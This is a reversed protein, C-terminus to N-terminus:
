EVPMVLCAAVLGPAGIREEKVNSALFEKKKENRRREQYGWEESGDYGLLCPTAYAHCLGLHRDGVSPKNRARGIQAQRSQSWLLSKQFGADSAHASRVSGVSIIIFLQQTRLPTSCHSFFYFIYISSIFQSIRLPSPQLSLPPDQSIEPTITVGEVRTGQSQWWM